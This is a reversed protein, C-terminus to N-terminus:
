KVASSDLEAQIERLQRETADLQRQATAERQSAVMSRVGVVAAIAVVAVVLPVMWVALRRRAM